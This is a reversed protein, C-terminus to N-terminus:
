DGAVSPGPDPQKAPIAKGDRSETALGSGRGAPGPWKGETPQRPQALQSSPVLHSQLEPSFGFLGLAKKKPALVFHFLAPYNSMLRFARIRLTALMHAICFGPWAPDTLSHLTSQTSVCFALSLHSGNEPRPESSARQGLRCPRMQPVQRQMQAWRGVQSAALVAHERLLCPHPAIKRFRRAQLM